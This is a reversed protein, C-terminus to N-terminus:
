FLFNKLSSFYRIKKAKGDNPKNLRYFPAAIFLPTGSRMRWRGEGRLVFVLNAELTFVLASSRAGVWLASLQGECLHHLQNLLSLFNRSDCFQVNVGAILAGGRRLHLPPPLGPFGWRRLNSEEGVIYIKKNFFLEQPNKQTFLQDWLDAPRYFVSLWTRCSTPDLATLGSYNM